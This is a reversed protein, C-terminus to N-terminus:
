NNMYSRYIHYHQVTYIEPNMMINNDYELKCLISQIRREGFCHILRDVKKEKVNEAFILEEKQLSGQQIGEPRM